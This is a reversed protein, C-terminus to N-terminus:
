LTQQSQRSFGPFCSCPVPVLIFMGNPATDAPLSLL